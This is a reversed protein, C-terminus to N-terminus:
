FKTKKLSSMLITMHNQSIDIKSSINWIDKESVMHIMKSNEVHAFTQVNKIEPRKVYKNENTLFLLNKNRNSCKKKLIKSKQSNSDSNGFFRSEFIFITSRPARPM